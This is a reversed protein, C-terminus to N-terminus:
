EKKCYRMLELKKKAKIYSQLAKEVDETLAGQTKKIWRQKAKHVKVGQENIEKQTYTKKCKM